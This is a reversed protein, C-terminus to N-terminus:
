SAHEIEVAIARLEFDDFSTADDKESKQRIHIMNGNVKMLRAPLPMRVREPEIAPSQITILDNLLGVLEGNLFVETSLFGARVEDLFPTVRLTGDGSPILEAIDASLFTQLALQENKMQFQLALETGDPEVRSFSERHGNGLHRPGADILQYSGEFLPTIRQIMMWGVTVDGLLPHQTVLGKDTAQRIASRIWFREALGGISCSVDPVLDIQAFEGTVVKSESTEPQEFCVAAVDKRDILLSRGDVESVVIRVAQAAESVEGYVEDGSNLVVRDSVKAQRVRHAIQKGVNSSRGAGRDVLRVLPEELVLSYAGVTQDAIPLLSPREAEIAVLQGPSTRLKALVVEHSSLTLERDALLRLHLQPTGVTLLKARGDPLVVRRKGARGSVEIQTRQGNEGVFVFRVTGGSRVVDSPSSDDRAAVSEAPWHGSLLVLYNDISPRDGPVPLQIRRHEWHQGTQGSGPGAIGNSKVLQWVSAPRLRPDATCVDVCGSPQRISAVHSRRLFTTPLRPVGFLQAAFLGPGPDPRESLSWFAPIVEGTWLTMIRVPLSSQPQFPRVEFQVPEGPTLQADGALRVSGRLFRSRSISGDSKRILLEPGVGNSQTASPEDVASASESPGGGFAFAAVLIIRIVHQLLRV